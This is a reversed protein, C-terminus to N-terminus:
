MVDDGREIIDDDLCPIGGIAACSSNQLEMMCAAAPSGNGAGMVVPKSDDDEAAAVASFRMEGVADLERTGWDVPDFPPTCTETESLSLLADLAETLQGVLPGWSALPRAM